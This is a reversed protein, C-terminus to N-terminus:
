FSGPATSLLARLVSSIAAMRKLANSSIIRVDNSPDITRTYIERVEVVLAPDPDNVIAKLHVIQDGFRDVDDTVYIKLEATPVAPLDM